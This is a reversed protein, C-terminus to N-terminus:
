KEFTISLNRLSVFIPFHLPESFKSSRDKLYNIILYFNEKILFYKFHYSNPTVKFTFSKLPVPVRSKIQSFTTDNSLDQNTPSVSSM